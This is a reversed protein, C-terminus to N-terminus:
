YSCGGDYTAIGAASAPTITFPRHNELSVISASSSLHFVKPCRESWIGGYSRVLTRRVNRANEELQQPRMLYLAAEWHPLAEGIESAVFPRKWDRGMVGPPQTTVPRAKDDLM